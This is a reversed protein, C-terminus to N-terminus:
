SKGFYQSAIEPRLEVAKSWCERAKDAQGLAIHVHGLNILAEACDPKQRLAERYLGAAENFRKEDQYLLGLQFSAEWSADGLARHYRAAAQIDRREIALFALAKVTEPDGPRLAAAREFARFADDPRDLRQYCVGLNHWDDFTGSVAALKACFRMAEEPDGADIAAVAQALLATRSRPDLELLKGAWERVLSRERLEVAVALGNALLEPLDPKEDLLRRYIALAPGFKETMQLAAAEGALSPVHEPRLKLSQGFAARAEAGRREHLLSVGLGFWAAGREPAALAAREFCEVADKWRGLRALCVGRNFQAARHEPAVEALKQYSQAAEEYRQQEFQIQGALLYADARGEKAGAVTALEALAAEPQGQSHLAMARVVAPHAAARKRVGPDDPEAALPSDVFQDEAFWLWRDKDAAM